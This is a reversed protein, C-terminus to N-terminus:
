SGWQFRSENPQQIPLRSKEEHGGLIGSSGEWNDGVGGVNLGKLGALLSSGEGGTSPVFMSDILNSEELSRSIALAGPFNLSGKQSDFTALAGPYSDKSQRALVPSLM